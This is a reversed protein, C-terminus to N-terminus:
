FFSTPVAHDRRAVATGDGGPSSAAPDHVDLPRYAILLKEGSDYLALELESPTQGAFRLKASQWPNEPSLDVRKRLIVRSKHRLVVRAETYPQSVAVGLDMRGDDEIVLRIAAQENANQVPGLNRYPWWFQSFTKTEYPLLYSFDPQNDTYVGAMLEIYPGNEDTLERDWARGFEDNGWTWQKKGPAIHKDAVHIFGGRKEYDYGGFFNFNTECVMYSTPVPINKYWSLDNAGPRRGYDIGYYKGRAQPFSAMARVAHDAVYHVDPPFFSQYRDHVRAAVNAWWLFTQTLPTRNFLRGRLEILCSGPRLRIGHMGKM